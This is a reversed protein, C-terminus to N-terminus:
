TNNTCSLLKLTLAGVLYVENTIEM